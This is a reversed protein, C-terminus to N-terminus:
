AYKIKNLVCGWIVLANVRSLLCVPKSYACLHCIRGGSMCFLLAFHFVIFNCTFMESPLELRCLGWVLFGVAERYFCRWRQVEFPLGQVSPLGWEISPVELTSLFLGSCRECGSLVRWLEEDLSSIFAALYCRPPFPYSQLFFDNWKLSNLCEQNLPAETASYVLEICM